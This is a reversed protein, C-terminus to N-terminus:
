STQVFVSYSCIIISISSKLFMNIFYTCAMMCKKEVSSYGWYYFFGARGVRPLGSHINM